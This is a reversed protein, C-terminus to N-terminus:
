SDIKYNNKGRRKVDYLARDARALLQDYSEMTDDTARRIAIGVSCSFPQRGDPARMARTQEMVREVSMLADTIDKKKFFLFFEDGGFRGAIDDTGISHRLIKGFSRLVEDGAQHGYTDNVMKFNDFDLILMVCDSQPHSRMFEKCLFETSAKNYTSTLRDMMGMRRIRQKAENESARYSYLIKAVYGALIIGFICSFFDVSFVEISKTLFSALVYVAMELLVLGLAQYFTYTFAVVFAVAMPMYYVAPQNMEIPVISMIGAFTMVYLQFVKCVISVEKYSRTKKRYRIIIIPLVVLHVAVARAYVGTVQWESFVTMSALLYGVVVVFYIINLAFLTKQNNKVVSSRNEEIYDISEQQVRDKIKYLLEMLKGGNIDNGRIKIVYM